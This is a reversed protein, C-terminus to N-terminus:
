ISFREIKSLLDSFAQFRHSLENKRALTLSAVTCGEQPLYFHKDYGFGNKGEPADTIEGHWIGEGVFPCPDDHSRILVLLTIYWAHKSCLHQMNKILLKNNASNGQYGGNIEAYRASYVGPAGGLGPVCLGSDDALAPLGTLQSASRAKELANEIFTSHYEEVSKSNPFENQPIIKVNLPDFLATYEHIKNINNSALVLKKFPTSYNIKSM